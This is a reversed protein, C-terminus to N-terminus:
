FQESSKLARWFDLWGTLRNRAAFEREDRAEPRFESAESNQFAKSDGQDPSRTQRATHSAPTFRGM